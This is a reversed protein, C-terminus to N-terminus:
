KSKLNELGMERMQHEVSVLGTQALFWSLLLFLTLCILVLFAVHFILWSDSSSFALALMVTLCLGLMLFTSKLTIWTPGNVGPALAGLLVATASSVDGAESETNRHEM